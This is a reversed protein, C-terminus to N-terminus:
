LGPISMDEKLELEWGLSEPADELPPLEAKAGAYEVFEKVGTELCFEFHKRAQSIDGRNLYYEGIYFHAECKQENDIKPNSHGAKKLCNEPSIKELFLHMVPSPWINRDIQYVYTPLRSEYRRDQKLLCLHLWLHVYTQIPRATHDKIASLFLQEAQSHEGEIFLLAGLHGKYSKNDPDLEVAKSYDAFARDLDEVALWVAGRGAYAMAYKPDLMIARSLDRVASNYDGKKAWAEGRFNYAKAYEPLLRTTLTLDRIAEDYRGLLIMTLGRNNYSRAAYKDLEIAKSFDAVASDLRGKRMLAIGRENYVVNLDSDLEIARNFDEIARDFEHKRNWLDGRNFHALAYYPDLEIAQDYDAMAKDLDGLKNWACGRTNYIMRTRNEDLAGSELAQTLLDIAQEYSKEAFLREGKMAKAEPDGPSIWLGVALVALILVGAIVIIKRM